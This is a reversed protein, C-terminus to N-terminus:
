SESVPSAPIAINNYAVSDYIKIKLFKGIELPESSELYVYPDDDPAERFTRAAYVYKSDSSFLDDSIQKEIFATEIKGELSMAWSMSIDDQIASIENVRDIITEEDIPTLNYDPTDEEHSYKFFGARELKVEEIFKVLEDFEKQDELPHGIIFTSRIVANPFKRRIDELIKYINKKKISRNMKELIINNVHQFPIDFYNLLNDHNSFLDLLRDTIRKPHLYLLRFWTNPYKILLNELLPIFNENIDNGWNLTDQAILVIELAGSKVAKKINEEIEVQKFSRFPGRILPITCYSCHNNCGDAIKIYEWLKGSLIENECINEVPILDPICLTDSISNALINEINDYNSIPIIMDAEEIESTLDELYREALCGVMFLLKCKGSAKYESLEFFTALSEEKASLIFGCTNLFIIDAQSAEFVPELQILVTKKDSFGFKRFRLLLNNSDVENKACGLTQIYIKLIKKEM